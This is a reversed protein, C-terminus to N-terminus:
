HTYNHIHHNNKIFVPTQPLQEFLATLESGLIRLSNTEKENYVIRGDNSHHVKIKSSGKLYEKIVKSCNSKFWM